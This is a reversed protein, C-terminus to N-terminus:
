QMSLLPDSRRMFVVQLDVGAQTSRVGHSTVFYGLSEFFAQANRTARVSTATFGARRAREEVARVLLTGLGLGSFLPQVFVDSIRATHGTDNAPAWSATGALEEGVWVAITDAALLQDGYAPSYVQEVFAEIEESNYHLAALRRFASSHVYRASSLDDLDLPRMQPTVHAEGYSGELM